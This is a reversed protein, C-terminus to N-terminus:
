LNQIVSSIEKTIEEEPKQGDIVVFEDPLHKLLVDYGLKIKELKEKKEYFEKKKDMKSLRSVAVSAPVDFYFTKDPRLFQDYMSLISLSALLVEQGNEYDVSERDSLGYAVSSWFYRECVVTKGAQLAPIIEQQLHVARDACFLYQLAVSPISVESQLIKHILEGIHGTRTPEHTVVVDKGMKQLSEGLLKAQTSKGSADLGELVIFKGPHTNKKFDIDFSVHYM